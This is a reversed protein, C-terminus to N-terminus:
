NKRVALVRDRGNCWEPPACDETGTKTMGPFPV